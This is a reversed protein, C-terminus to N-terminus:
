YQYLSVVKWRRKESYVSSVDSILGNDESKRNANLDCILLTRYYNISQCRERKTCERLCQMFDKGSLRTILSDYDFRRGTWMKEVIGKSFKKTVGSGYALNWCSTLFVVYRYVMNKMNPTIKKINKVLYNHEPCSCKQSSKCTHFVQLELWSNVSWKTKYIYIYM